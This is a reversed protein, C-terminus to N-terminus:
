KKSSNLSYKEKYKKYEQIYENDVESKIHSFYDHTELTDMEPELLSVAINSCHGAIREYTILLDSLVFGLEVTCGGERLRQIHNDKIKYKLKDIVGDLPEVKKALEYDNNVFADITITIIENVADTIVKVDDEAYKSFSINKDDMEKAANAINVSHDSIREIDGVVHLLRNVELSDKASLDRSAIKALYSGTKDEYRDIVGETDIIEKYTAKNYNYLVDIGKLVSQKTINSMDYVLERCKEVAFSPMSLFRDDLTSFIDVEDDAEGPKRRITKKTIWVIQKTFPLLIFTSLINFLTHVIAITLISVNQDMIPFDFIADLVYFAVSVVVVGIIKIYVAAAAVRKSSTNGTLASLVPTITTGINQGLIIPIAVSYPIACTLSLAQLIGVSASSSQLVATVITGILIAMLPNSFKILVDSFADADMSSMMDMGFIILSFGILISGINKKRDSSSAMIMIVGILALIPTFSDPKLLKLFISSDGEIGTLSLIWATVTTGINSGMLISITQSLKMIGSNVFGVLMVSTASSSQIIATVVLGLLFGRTKTSTLSALFSELKSGALKKLSDGMMDMGYLFIALGGILTLISFIDM